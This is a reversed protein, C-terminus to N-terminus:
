TFLRTIMLGFIFGSVGLGISMMLYIAAMGLQGREILYSLELSFASFTTFGGLLGVGIFLRLNEANEPAARYLWGALIGMFLSGVTNVALTAFPFVQIVDAGMWKTMFRGLQYRALSGIGGGIAVSLSAVLPSTTQSM